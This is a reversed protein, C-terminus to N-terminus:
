DLMGHRAAALLAEQRNGAGLRKYLEGVLRHMQRESYREAQALTAITSGAAMARLWRLDNVSVAERADEAGAATVLQRVLDTPIVTLGALAAQVVAIIRAIADERAVIGNAGARVARRWSASTTEDLLAVLVAEPAQARAEEFAHWGHAHVSVAVADYTALPAPLAALEEVEFGCAAFELALGRRYAPLREVV